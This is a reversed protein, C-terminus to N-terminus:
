HGNSSLPPPMIIPRLSVAEDSREESPKFLWGPNKNILEYGTLKFIPLPLNSNPEYGIKGTYKGYIRYEYNDDFAYAPTSGVEPYRDPVLKSSEDMIVLKADRWSTGPKRLYGWFRTAPVHYRRGIYYNGKPESTIFQERGAIAKQDDLTTNCQTLPLCALSLSLLILKKMFLISIFRTVSLTLSSARIISM